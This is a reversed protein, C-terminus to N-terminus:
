FITRYAWILAVVALIAVIPIFLAAVIGIVVKLLIWAAVVLILAALATRGFSRHSREQEHM